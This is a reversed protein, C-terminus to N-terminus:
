FEIAVGASPLIPLLPDTPGLVRGNRDVGYPVNRVNTRNLANVVELFLTLRRASWAFTRDARIDLRAYAPLRLTNRDTVLGYFLPQDGDLLRPAESGPAQEGIYGALPYNSGYRFKGSLSARSSLRYNAFLSVTHRQDADAWFREDRLPDTYRLRAYSYGAWGSLGDPADRRVMVEVGRARGELANTWPADGRGLQVAGDPLRRPEAGPTWLVDHERRGFWALQVTTRAFITQTMAADVHTAREPRLASGGGRLGFLPEFDPFQRYVGGGARVRTRAAIPWEM